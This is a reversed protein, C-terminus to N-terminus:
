DVVLLEVSNDLEHNNYGMGSFRISTCTFLDGPKINEIAQLTQADFRAGLCQNEFIVSQNREIIINFSNVKFPADFDFGDIHLVVGLQAKLLTGKIKGRNRAGVYPTPQSVRKTRFEKIGVLKKGNATKLFISINTLGPKDPMVTYQCPESGKELTGNNTEVILDKCAINEVMPTIPNLIGVYLVNMKDASVTFQQATGSLNFATLILLFIRKILM